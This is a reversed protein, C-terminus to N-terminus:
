HRCNLHFLFTKTPYFFKVLSNVEDVCNMDQVLKQKLQILQTRSLTTALDNVRKQFSNPNTETLRLLELEKQTSNLMNLAQFFGITSLIKM